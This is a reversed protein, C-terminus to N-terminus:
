QSSQGQGDKCQLVLIMITHIICRKCFSEGFVLGLSDGSADCHVEFPKKLDQLVLLPKLMLRAKLEKSAEHEKAIWKCQVKKKTLDHQPRVIVLFMEIFRNYYSCMGIFNCLQHINKPVPWANIVELNKPVMHIDDQFYYLWSLLKIEYFIVERKM